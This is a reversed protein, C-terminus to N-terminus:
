LIVVALIISVEKAPDNNKNQKKQTHKQTNIVKVNRDNTERCTTEAFALQKGKQARQM